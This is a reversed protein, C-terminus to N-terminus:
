NCESLVERGPGVRYAYSGSRLPSSSRYEERNRTKPMLRDGCSKRISQANQPAACVISARADRTAVEYGDAPKLRGRRSDCPPGGISPLVRAVPPRRWHSARSGAAAKEAGSICSNYGAGLRSNLRRCHSHLWSIYGASKAAPLHMSLTLSFCSVQNGGPERRSRLVDALGEARRHDMQPLEVAVDEVDPSFPSVM